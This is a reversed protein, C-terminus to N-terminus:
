FLGAYILITEVSYYRTIRYMRGTTLPRNEFNFCMVQQVRKQRLITTREHRWVTKLDYVHLGQLYLIYGETSEQKLINLDQCEEPLQAQTTKPLETYALSIM